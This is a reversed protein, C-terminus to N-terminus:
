SSIYIYQKYEKEEELYILFDDLYIIDLRDLYINIKIKNLLYNCM